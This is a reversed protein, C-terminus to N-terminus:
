HIKRTQTIKRDAVCAIIALAVYFTILIVFLTAM